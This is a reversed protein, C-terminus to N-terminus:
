PLLKGWLHTSYDSSKSWVFFKFDPSGELVVYLVGEAAVKRILSFAEEYTAVEHTSTPVMQGHSNAYVVVKM